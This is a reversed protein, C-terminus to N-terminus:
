QNWEYAFSFKKGELKRLFQEFL